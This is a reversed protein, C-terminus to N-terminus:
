AVEATELASDMPNGLAIALGSIDLHIATAWRYMLEPEQQDLMVIHLPKGAGAIFGAELHASRGCPLVLVGVECWDVAGADSEFGHRAVPHELAERFEAPTWYQWAQDIESWAFGHDDCTPNRFDYVEHGSSRLVTVVTPQSRNRWSSAVYIRSM